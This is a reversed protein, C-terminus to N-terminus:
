STIKNFSEALNRDPNLIRQEIPVIKCHYINGTELENMNKVLEQMFTELERTDCAAGCWQSNRKAFLTVYYTNFKDMGKLYPYYPLSNLKREKNNSVLNNITKFEITIDFQDLVFKYVLNNGTYIVDFDFRKNMALVIHEKIENRAISGAIKDNERITDYDGNIIYCAMVLTSQWGDDIVYLEDEYKFHIGVFQNYGIKEAPVILESGNQLQHHFELSPNYADYKDVVSKM